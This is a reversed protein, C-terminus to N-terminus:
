ACFYRIGKLSTFRFLEGLILCAILSGENSLSCPFNETQLRTVMNFTMVIDQIIFSGCKYMHHTVRGACYISFYSRFSHSEVSLIIYKDLLIVREGDEATKMLGSVTENNPTLVCSDTVVELVRCGTLPCSYLCTDSFVYLNDYSGAVDNISIENLIFM